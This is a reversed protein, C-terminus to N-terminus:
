GYQFVSVSRSACDSQGWQFEVAYIELLLKHNFDTSFSKAIM